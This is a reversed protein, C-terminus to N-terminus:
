MRLEVHRVSGDSRIPIRAVGERIEVNADDVNGSRIGRTRGDPNDIRIHYIASDGPIKYSISFEGWSSPVRPDILIMAGEEVSFGIISEIVIRYMWGAAGTYWSGGGRGAHPEEGYVGASM